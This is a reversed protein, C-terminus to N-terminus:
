IGSPTGGSITQTSVTYTSSPIGGDINTNGGSGSITFSIIEVVDGVVASTALIFSTGSTATYDTPNLLVGNVYIQLYGPTYTATFSTQGAAAIIATRTYTTFINSSGGSGSSSVIAANLNIFNADLEANTLPRNVATTGTDRTVIIAM